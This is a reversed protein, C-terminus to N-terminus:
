FKIDLDEPLYSIQSPEVGNELAFADVERKIDDYDTTKELINNFLELVYEVKQDSEIWKLVCNELYQHYYDSIDTQACNITEYLNYDSDEFLESVITLLFMYYHYHKKSLNSSAVKLCLLTFFLDIQIISFGFYINTDAKLGYSDIQEQSLRNSFVDMDRNGNMAKRVDYMMSYIYNSATTYHLDNFISSAENLTDYLEKLDHYDGQIHVGIINETFSCELM